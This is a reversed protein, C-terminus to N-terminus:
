KLKLMYGKNRVTVIEINQEKLEQRLTFILVPVNGPSASYNPWVHSLIQKSSIFQGFNIFFLCLARALRESRFIRHTFFGNSVLSSEQSLLSINRWTDCSLCHLKKEELCRYIIEENSNSGHPKANLINM